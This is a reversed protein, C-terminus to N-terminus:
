QFILLIARRNYNGLLKSISIILVEASAASITNYNGLLKSISIIILRINKKKMSNYNGLLKSISIILRGNFGSIM